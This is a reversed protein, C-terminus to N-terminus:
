AFAVRRDARKLWEWVETPYSLRQETFLSQSGDQANYVTAFSPIDSPQANKVIMTLGHEQAEADVAADGYEYEVVINFPDSLNGRPWVADKRWLQFGSVVIQAPDVPTGNATAAIIKAPKTKGPRDLETGDATRAQVRWTSLTRTGDGCAEIRVHRRAWGRDTRDEFQSTIKTRLGELRADPYKATDALPAILGSSTHARADAITFLLSGVIEEYTTGVFGSADSWDLRLLDLRSNLTASLTFEDNAVTGDDVLLTGDARTIDVLTSGAPGQFTAPLNVLNM